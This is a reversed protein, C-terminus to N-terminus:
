AVIPADLHVPSECMRRHKVGRNVTSVTAIKSAESLAPAGGSAASFLAVLKRGIMARGPSPTGEGVVVAVTWGEAVAVAVVCGEGVTVLVGEAVAVAV